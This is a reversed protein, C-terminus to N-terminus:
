RLPSSKRIAREVAVDLKNNGSSQILQVDIIEGSPLQSVRYKSVPNGEVDPPIVVNRRIKESLLGMYSQNSTIKAGTNKEAVLRKEERKLEHLFDDAQVKNSSHVIPPPAKNSKSEKDSLYCASKIWRVSMSDPKGTEWTGTGDELKNVSNIKDGKGFPLSYMEVITMRSQKMSKCDFEMYLVSSHVTRGKLEMNNEVNAIIRGEAVGGRRSVSSKILYFSFNPKGSKDRTVGFDVYNNKDRQPVTYKTEAPALATPSTTEQASQNQLTTRNASCGVIIFTSVLLIKKLNMQTTM